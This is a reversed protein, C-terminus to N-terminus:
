DPGKHQDVPRRDPLDRANHKMFHKEFAKVLGGDKTLRCTALIEDSLRVTITYREPKITSKAVEFMEAAEVSLPATTWLEFHIALRSWDSHARAASYIVPANHQLWRKMDKVPVEGYPSYGKCEIFTVATDDRVALVDAEASKVGDPSKFIRNMRVQPSITKRAIDAALYEFLTGRLQLAAGEIKGFKKFLEDFQFPDIASSSAERLVKTLQVLGQAVDEGFLNAPTAPIIGNEKLLQFAEGTYQYAVYMQMCPAINRLQRLTKCKNIFPRVGEATMRGGLYVDCVFFGPKPKGDKSRKTLFGLYSPATLDWAFTGVMAPKDGERTAVKEYSVIGLKRVWDRISTLLLNETILRARIDDGRWQYYDPAQVLSVCEGVSPVTVQELLGAENLRKLITEPSLHKSQKVPAGCVIAFQAEPVLGDRQLLAAIALGYASNTRLLAETLTHWYLKSGFQEELYMFRAKRPFTIYGLKKVKGGARAIRQRAAAPTIHMVRVLHDAVEGSLCPGQTKLFREIFDVRNGM